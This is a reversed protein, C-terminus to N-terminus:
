VTEEPAPVVENPDVPWQVACAAILSDIDTADTIAPRAANVVARVAARYAKYEDSIPEGTEAQKVVMWDSPLLLSYATANLQDRSQQKLQELDKPTNIYSLVAGNLQETVWYYRDDKPGEGAAVVVEVLGVAAKEEASSLNLWSPPYQVGGLTFATGETVYKNESQAYFM